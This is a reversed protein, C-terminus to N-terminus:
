FAGHIVEEDKGRRLLVEVLELSRGEFTDELFDAGQGLVRTRGSTKLQRTLFSITEPGPIIAKEVPDVVRRPPDVDVPDLV